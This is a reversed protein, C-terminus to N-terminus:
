HSFLNFRFDNGFLHSVEYDTNSGEIQFVKDLAESILEHKPATQGLLGHVMAKNHKLSSTMELYRFPHANWSDPNLLDRGVEKIFVNIDFEETEIKVVGAIRGNKHYKGVDNSVWSVKIEENELITKKTTSIDYMKHNVLVYGAEENPSAGSSHIALQYNPTQIGISGIFTNHERFKLDELSSVSLFEREKVKLNLQFNKHTIANYIKNPEGMFDFQKGNWGTFHPDGIISGEHYIVTLKLINLGFPNHAPYASFWPNVESSFSIELTFGGERSIASIVSLPIQWSVVHLVNYYGTDTPNPIAHQQGTAPDVVYFFETGDQYAPSANDVSNENLYKGLDITFGSPTVLFVQFYRLKPDNQVGKSVEGAGYTYYYGFDGSIELKIDMPGVARNLTTYPIRVPRSPSQTIFNEEYNYWTTALALQCVVLLSFVIVAARM